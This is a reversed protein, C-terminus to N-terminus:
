RKVQRKILVGISVLTLIGLVMLEKTDILLYSIDAVRDYSLQHIFKIITHSLLNAFALIVAIITLNEIFELVGNLIFRSRTVIINNKM